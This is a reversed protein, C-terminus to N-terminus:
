QSLNYWATRDAFYLSFNFTKRSIKPMM